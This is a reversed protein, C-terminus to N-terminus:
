RWQKLLEEFMADFKSKASLFYERNVRYYKENGEMRVLDVAFEDHLYNVLRDVTTRSVHLRMSLRTITQEGKVLEKIIDYITENAFLKAISLSTINNYVPMRMTDRCANASIVYAYKEGRHQWIFVAPHLLSVSFIQEEIKVSKDTGTKKVYVKIVEPVLFREIAAIAEGNHTKHFRRLRFVLTEMYKGLENTVEDFDHFLRVFSQLSSGHSRLLVVAETIAKPDEGLVAEIDLQDQYPELLHFLVIRKFQAKDNLISLFDKFTGNYFTYHNIFCKSLACPREGDYYFFPYFTEPPDIVGQSKRFKNYNVFAEGDSDLFFRIKEFVKEKSFYIVNYMIADYIIGPAPNFNM